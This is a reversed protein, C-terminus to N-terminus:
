SCAPGLAPCMKWFYIHELCDWEEKQLCLLTVCQHCIHWVCGFRLAWPLKNLNLQVASVFSSASHDPLLEGGPSASHGSSQGSRSLAFGLCHPEPSLSQMSTVEPHGYQRGLVHCQLCVVSEVTCWSFCLQTILEPTSSGFRTQSMCLEPSLAESFGLQGQVSGRVTEVSIGDACVM